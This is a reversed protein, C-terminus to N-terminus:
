VFWQARGRCLTCVVVVVVVVVVVLIELNILSLSLFRHVCKKNKPVYLIVNKKSTRDSVRMISSLQIVCCM